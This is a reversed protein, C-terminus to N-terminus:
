YSYSESVAFEYKWDPLVGKVSFFIPSYRYKVSVKMGVIWEELYFMDNGYLERVTQEQMDMCRKALQNEQQFLLLIGLYEAYGLGEECDVAKSYGKGIMTIYDLDITWNANSKLLAIKGGTLLTRIDLISEAFAWAALVATKVIEVLVPNITAGVIGVAVVRAAEVKESNSTLYLFNATERIALLQNVVVKLNEIDTEKGGLLYEVEYNLYHKKEELYNSMHTLLYQQLLVRDYWDAEELDPNYANPVNRASVVSSLDISKDSLENTDEIVLSLIGKEKLALITELPNEVESVGSEEESTEEALTGTSGVSTDEEKLESLAEEIMSDDFGSNNQINKIGEYQNYIAKAQEYLLNKEMYNAVTQVFARGDGDILRTYGEQRVEVVRFQYFDAGQSDDSRSQDGYKEIMTNVTSQKCALLRYEEWLYTNYEAFVSELAVQTQLQALRRMEQFRTAELLALLASAILLMSLVSFITISGKKM